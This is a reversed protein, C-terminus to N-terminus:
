LYQTSIGSASCPISHDSHAETGLLYEFYHQMHQSIGTLTNMSHIIRDRQIFNFAIEKRGTETAFGEHIQILFRVHINDTFLAHQPWEHLICHIHTASQDINLYRDSM